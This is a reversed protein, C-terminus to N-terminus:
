KASRKINLLTKALTEDDDTRPSATSFEMRHKAIEQAEGQESKHKLKKKLKKVRQTITILAKNYVAKTTTLENELHTVKDSLKICIAMLELLQISGEGSRSTHGEGPGGKLNTRPSSPRYPTGKTQTKSINGSGQEAVLSSATTTARELGYHMEKTIAENAASSPVNSNPIRIGM